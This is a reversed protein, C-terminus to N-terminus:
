GNPMGKRKASGCASSRRADARAGMKFVCYVLTCVPIGILVIALVLVIYFLTM